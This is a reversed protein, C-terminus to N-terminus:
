KMPTYQMRLACKQCELWAGHLNSYQKPDHHGECPWFDKSARPDQTHVGMTRTPDLEGKPGKKAKAKPTVKASASALAREVAAQIKNNAM